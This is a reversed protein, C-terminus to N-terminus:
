GLPNGQYDFVAFPIPKGMIRDAVPKLKAAISNINDDGFMSEARKKAASLVDEEGVARDMPGSLEKGLLKIAGPLDDLPRELLRCEKAIQKVVPVAKEADVVLKNNDNITIAGQEMLRGVIYLDAKKHAGKLGVMMWIPGYAAARLMLGRLKDPTKEEGLQAVCGEAQCEETANNHPKLHPSISTGFVHGAEHLDVAVTAADMILDMDGNRLELVDQALKLRERQIMMSVNTFVVDRYLQQGPENPLKQGSLRFYQQFGGVIFAHKREMNLTRFKDDDRIKSISEHEEE